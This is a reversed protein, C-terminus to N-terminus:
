YLFISCSAFLNFQLLFYEVPPGFDGFIAIVIARLLDLSDVTKFYRFVIQVIESQKLFLVFRKWFRHQKVEQM